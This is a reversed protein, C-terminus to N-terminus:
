RDNKFKHILCRDNKFFFRVKESFDNADRGIINEFQYESDPDM